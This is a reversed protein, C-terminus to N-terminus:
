DSGLLANNSWVPLDTSSLQLAKVVEKTVRRPNTRVETLCNM